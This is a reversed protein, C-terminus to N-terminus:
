GLAALGGDVPLVAGTVYSGARSALFLIAGAADALEGLRQMPIGAKVEEERGDLYSRSMRSPFTGPAIANVTILPALRWALQRTLHHVAAKSATYAYLDMPPVRLADVSGVNVIRAPDDVRAAKELQPLFFRTLHAIAKLNLALVKDWVADDQDELPANWITGANNVLLHLRDTRESFAVTLQRCGAESGLNASLAHCAGYASLETAAAQCADPKRGAIYVVAGARVLGEAIMKGIGASGGTVLAVKGRVSFLDDM